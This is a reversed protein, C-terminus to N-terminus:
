APVLARGAAPVPLQSLRKVAAPVRPRGVGGKLVNNVVFPILGAVIVLAYGTLDLGAFGFFQRLAPVGLVLAQLGVTGILAGDLIRNRRRRHAGSLVPQHSRCTLAHSLQGVILGLCAVTQAQPGPGYLALAAAYGGLSGAALVASERGIRWLDTRRMIPERPDRPPTRMVDEHAPELALGIAPFVDTALNIWLLQMATLPQGAGAAIAAFMVLIESFNTSLLFQIARRVNLYIARGRAVAVAMDGVDDRQLVVDAMERAVRTGGHGMAVGIDAAKLAPGDNVGDGTMAVVRRRAQLAQVIRLKDAPTVRSFAHAEEALEGLRHMDLEHLERADVVHVEGERALGLDRAIARATDRQDGTIMVTAVGARHFEQVAERVGPRVPDALGVLGLWVLEGDLEGAADPPADTGACAAALVRLGEDAMAANLRILRDREGEDLPRDGDPTRVHACMELVEDPSGKVALFTGGDPTTHRSAMHNRGNGRERIDLMPHAKRLKKAKFGARDAAAILAAETASGDFVREGNRKRIRTESCLVSVRLLDGLASGDGLAPQGIATGPRLDLTDAATRVERVAMRNETLTGTKDFCVTQVSGLTEVAPLRRILVGQRRMDRVGLALTTVAMAPLGEPVAAVALAMANKVMQVLAFGRVLGVGFVAVCVGGSALALWTGLQNLQRQSPTQPAEAADALAQIRGMETAGGTATVLVTARGATVATGQYVMNVRDAIPAAEEGLAGAQKRVGVSEGTLPSEDVMLGRSEVVRADVPVPSGATIQVLDGPVLETEACNWKKGGRRVRVIGEGTEAMSAITADARRETIYGIVTNVAVIGVIAAADAIGGTAVSVAASGMLLMVPLSVVQERVTEWRSKARMERLRNAGYRARRAEAVDVPLGDHADSELREACAAVPMTHWAVGDPAPHASEAEAAEGTATGGTEPPADLVGRLAALVEDKATEADFGIVVSRSWASARATRVGPVRALGREVAAALEPAARLDPVRVRLRGATRDDAITFGHRAAEEEVTAARM